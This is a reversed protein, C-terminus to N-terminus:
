LRLSLSLSLSLLLGAELLNIDLSDIYDLRVADNPQDDGVFRVKRSQDHLFFLIWMVSSCRSQREEVVFARVFPNIHSSTRIM